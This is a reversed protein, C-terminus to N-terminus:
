KEEKPQWECHLHENDQGQGEFVVDFDKGLAESCRHVIEIKTALNNIHKTRLDVALGKYHLSNEMHQSGTAETLVCNYNYCEFISSIIMLGLVMEPQLGEIKAGPKISLM